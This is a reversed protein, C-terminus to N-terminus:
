RRNRGIATSVAKRSARQEVEELMQGAGGLSDFRIPEGPRQWLRHLSKDLETVVRWVFAGDSNRNEVLIVLREEALRVADEPNLEDAGTPHAKVRVCRGHPASTWAGRQISADLVEDLRHGQRGPDQMWATARIQEPDPTRTLDWVHWGDEIKHLIRDLWGHSDPDNAVNPDIEIRM